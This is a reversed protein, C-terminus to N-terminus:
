VAVRRGALARLSQLGCGYARGHHGTPATQEGDEDHDLWQIKPKNLGGTFANSIQQEVNEIVGEFEKAGRESADSVAGVIGKVTVGTVPNM